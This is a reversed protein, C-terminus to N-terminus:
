GVQKVGKENLKPLVANVDAVTLGLARAIDGSSVRTNGLTRMAQIYSYVAAEIDKKSRQRAPPKTNSVPLSISPTASVSRGARYTTTTPSSKENAAAKPMRHERNM